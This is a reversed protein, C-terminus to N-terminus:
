PTHGNSPVVIGGTLQRILETKAERNFPVRIVRQGDPLPVILVLTRAPTDISHVQVGLTHTAKEEGTEPNTKLSWGSKTVTAHVTLELEQGFRLGKFWDLDRSIMLDIEVGGAFALKLVDARHGNLKPVPTDYPEPDFLEAAGDARTALEDIKDADIVVTHTAM